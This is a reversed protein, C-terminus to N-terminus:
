FLNKSVRDCITLNSTWNLKRKAPSSNRNQKKKRFLNYFKMKMKASQYKRICTEVESKVKSASHQRSTLLKTKVRM